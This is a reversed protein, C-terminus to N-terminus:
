SKSQGGEEAREVSTDLHWGRGEVRTLGAMGVRALVDALREGTAPHVLDPEIDLLPRLVFNRETLRAHPITLAPTDMVLGEYLEIDLDLPRPSWRPGPQRGLAAEISKLEGLLAEPELTTTVRCAANLYDPPPAPPQPTSEYLASVADLRVLRELLVLSRVLSRRRDGLNSGLGLYVETM